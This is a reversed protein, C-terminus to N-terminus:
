RTWRAWGKRDDRVLAVAIVAYLVAAVVSLVTVSIMMVTVSIMQIDLLAVCHHQIAIPFHCSGNSYPPRYYYYFYWM